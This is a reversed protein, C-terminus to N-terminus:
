KNISEKLADLENKRAEYLVEWDLISQKLKNNESITDKYKLEVIELKTKINDNEKELNYISDNHNISEKVESSLKNKLTDRESRLRELKQSILELERKLNEIIEEANSPFLKDKLVVGIAAGAVFGLITIWM